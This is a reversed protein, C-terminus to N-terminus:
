PPPLSHGVLDVVFAPEEGAQRADAEDDLSNKRHDREAQARRGRREEGDLLTQFEELDRTVRGLLEQVRAEDRRRAHPSLHAV